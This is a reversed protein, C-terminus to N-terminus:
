SVSLPLRQWGGHRSSQWVRGHGAGRSHQHRHTGCCIVSCIWKCCCECMCLYVRKSRHHCHVTCESQVYATNTNSHLKSYKMDGNFNSELVDLFVRRASILPKEQSNLIYNKVVILGVLNLVIVNHLLFHYCCLSLGEYWSQLSVVYTWNTVYSLENKHHPFIRGMNILNLALRNKPLNVTWSLPARKPSIKVCFVSVAILITHWTRSGFRQPGPFPSPLSFTWAPTPTLPGM